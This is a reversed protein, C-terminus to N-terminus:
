SYSLRQRLRRQLLPSLLLRFAIAKGYEATLEDNRAATLAQGFTASYEFTFGTKGLADRTVRAMRRGGAGKHGEDVLILNNNGEFAEM